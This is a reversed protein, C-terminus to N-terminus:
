LVRRWNMQGNTAAMFNIWAPSIWIFNMWIAKEVMPAKEQIIETIEPLAKLIIGHQREHNQVSPLAEHGHPHEHGLM